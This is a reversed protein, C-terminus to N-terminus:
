AQVSKAKIAQELKAIDAQIKERTKEDNCGSLESRLERLDARLAKIDGEILLKAKGKTVDVGAIELLKKTTLNNFHM